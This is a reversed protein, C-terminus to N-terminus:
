PLPIAVIDAIAPDVNDYSIYDVVDGLAPSFPVPGAIITKETATTMYLDFDGAQLETAPVSGVTLNFFTPFVEDISEGSPVIYFDVLDHNTAAHMFSLKVLTEISRRDYVRLVSILNDVEGVMYFENHTGGFITSTNEHLISGANGAATYTFPYTGAAIPIDGTVDRFAHNAVIQDTLMDDIYIDSTALNPTAHFFRVTPSSNEDILSSAIGSDAIVMVSYPGVDNADPDFLSVLFSTQVTPTLTGSTFLIDSPDGATTVNVVYEGQPYDVSPLTETFSITGSAQGLAPPVGPDQFYIDVPGLTTSTHAFSTRFVTETGEWIRSEEQWVTITPADITGTLLFTYVNDRVTKIPISAVRTRTLDGALIVEFNFIYDLDDFDSPAANGKYSVTALAREEILFSFTPSTPIANLARFTATGSATERSSGSGCGSIAVVAAFGLILLTKRM